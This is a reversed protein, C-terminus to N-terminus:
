AAVRQRRRSVVIAIGGLGILGLGTITMALTGGAGTLPLTVGAQQVNAVTLDNGTTAGAVVDIGWRNNDPGLPTVYGAPAKTEVVVYCRFANDAPANVSDSVFLGPIVVIGDDGSTFTSQGGVSLPSGTAVAGACEAATAPYPTEAAYVQFEAGKLPNAATTSDTKLIKADGWNSTVATSPVGPRVRNGAGDAPNNVYATATNSIAGDGLSTVTAHFTVVVDANPNAALLAQVATDAVDLSVVVTQGSQSVEYDGTALETGALTVSKVGVKKGSSAAAATLRSDFTDAVDFSTFESGSAMAPVRVTVPFEVLSGLGLGQQANITKAVTTVANKPYVNVTYLWGDGSPFPVTVIFPAATDTVTSPANTECVVYAGIKSVAITAEGNDDTTASGVELGKTYGTGGTIASCAANVGLADLGDWAAAKSLDVAVGDHRLEYVTFTVGSVPDTTIEKSGDPSASVPNSGTQHEHKHIIISGSAAPDINGPIPAALAPSCM